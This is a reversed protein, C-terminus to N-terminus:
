YVAIPLQEGTLVLNFPPLESVLPSAGLLTPRADRASVLLGHRCGLGGLVQADLRTRSSPLTLAMWDDPTGRFSTRSDSWARREGQSMMIDGCMLEIYLEVEADLGM